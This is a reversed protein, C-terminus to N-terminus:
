ECLKVIWIDNIKQICGQAPYLPMNKFTDTEKIDNFENDSIDYMEFGLFYRIFNNRVGSTLLGNELAVGSFSRLKETGMHGNDTIEVISPNDVYHFEGVFSVKDGYTFGEELEVRSIVREFFEVVRDKALEMRMYAQNTVLYNSYSAIIVVACVTGVSAMRLLTNKKPLNTKDKDWREICIEIMAIVFVYVFVYPYLMLMSYPVEPGMFYIFATAFPILGMCFCLFVLKLKDKYIRKMYILYIGLCVMLIFIVTNMSHSMEPMFDFPKWIFFELFRKYCRAFLRPMQALPIQGMNGVGGYTENGINPYAIHCLVMYIATSIGVTAAHIIGKKLGEAFKAGRFLDVIISMLILTIAICVYSQYTGMSCILLVGFPIFGYKYKRLVYVGGCVMLIAFGSTHSMFMFTMTSATAPYTMLLLPVLVAATTSKLSFIEMIFCASLALCLILIFGHVAPISYISGLPHIYKLMWRGLYDTSGPQWMNNMDDWNPLKHTLMYFHTVWGVLLAMFFCLKNHKQIRNKINNILDFKMKYIKGKWLQM